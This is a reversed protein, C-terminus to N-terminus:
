SKYKKFHKPFAAVIEERRTKYPDEESQAELENLGFVGSGPVVAIGEKAYLTLLREEM